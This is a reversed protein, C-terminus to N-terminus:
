QSVTTAYNGYVRIPVYRPEMVITLVEPHDRQITVEIGQAGEEVLDEVYGDQHQRAEFANKFPGFFYICHPAQTQIKVWWPSLSRPTFFQM